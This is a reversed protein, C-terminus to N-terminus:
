RATTKKRAADVFSHFLRRSVANTRFLNEPHWQVGMVFSPGKGEFAEIVGDTATASLTYGEPIRRVAQHHYSNVRIRDTGAIEALLTGRRIQVSHSLYGRSGRQVHQILGERQSNLDQYMDGGLAINLIQCGRCIALIPKGAKVMMRSLAIEMEDREPEVEGLGVLPEEGFLAPDIDDGGTLLLGDIREVMGGLAAADTTYPLLLPVGGADLVADSNDRTLTFMNEKRRMSLTIGIAPQM